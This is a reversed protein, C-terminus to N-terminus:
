QISDEIFVQHIDQTPYGHHCHTIRNIWKIYTKTILKRTEHCQSGICLPQCVNKVRRYLSQPVRQLVKINTPHIQSQTICITYDHGRISSTVISYRPSM